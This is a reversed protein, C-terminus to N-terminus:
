SHLAQPQLTELLTVRRFLIASIKEILQLSTGNGTNIKTGSQLDQLAVMVNDKPDLQVYM